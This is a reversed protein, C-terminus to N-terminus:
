SVNRVSLTELGTLDTEASYNCLYGGVGFRGGYDSNRLAELERIWHPECHTRLTTMIEFLTSNTCQILSTLYWQIRYRILFGVVNIHTFIYAYAM